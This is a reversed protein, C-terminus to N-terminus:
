DDAKNKLYNIILNYYLQLQSDDYKDVYRMIREKVSYNQYKNLSDIFFTDVPVKLTEAISCITAVNMKKGYGNEIASITSESMGIQTALDKRSLGAKNRCERVKKGVQESNFNSSM